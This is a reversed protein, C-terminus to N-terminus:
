ARMDGKKEPFCSSSVPLLPPPPLLSRPPLPPASFRLFSLPLFVGTAATSSPPLAPPLSSPRFFCRRRRHQVACFIEVAAACTLRVAACLSLESPPPASVGVAASVAVTCVAACVTASFPVDATVACSAVACEAATVAASFPPPLPGSLPFPRRFKLPTPRRCSGRRVIWSFREEGVEIAIQELIVWMDKATKKRLILPQIDVSVSNVIWTKVQNDELFWTDWVGNTEAPEPKRGNIYAIWGHGVIGMTMTVQVPVNETRYAGIETQDTNVTSSSFAAMVGCWGPLRPSLLLAPPLLTVSSLLPVPSLVLSRRCCSSGVASLCIFAAPCRDAATLKQSGRWPLGAVAFLLLPLPSTPCFTPPSEM